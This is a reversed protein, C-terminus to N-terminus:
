SRIFLIVYVDRTLDFTCKIQYCIYSFLNVDLYGVNFRKKKENKFLWQLNNLNLDM